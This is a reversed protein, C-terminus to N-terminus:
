KGIIEWTEKNDIADIEVQTATKFNKAHSHRLIAKWYSFSNSLNTIYFKSLLIKTELNSVDLTKEVFEILFAVHVIFMTM